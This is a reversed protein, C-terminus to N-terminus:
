KKVAAAHARAIKQASRKGRKPFCNEVEAARRDPALGRLRDRFHLRRRSM